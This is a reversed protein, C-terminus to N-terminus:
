RGRICSRTSKYGRGGTATALFASAPPEAPTASGPYLFWNGRWDKLPGEDLDGLPVTLVKGISGVERLGRTSQNVRAKKNKSICCFRRQSSEGSLNLNILSRGDECGPMEWKQCRDTFNPNVIFWCVGIKFCRYTSTRPVPSTFVPQSCSLRRM